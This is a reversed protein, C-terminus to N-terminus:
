VGGCSEWGWPCSAHVCALGDVLPGAVASRSLDTLARFRM